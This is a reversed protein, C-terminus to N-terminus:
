IVITYINERCNPCSRNNRIWPIICDYHFKHKRNLEIWEIDNNIDLCISCCDNNVINNEPNNRIINLEIVNENFGIYRDNIIPLNNISNINYRLKSM